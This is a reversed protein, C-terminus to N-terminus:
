SPPSITDDRRRVVLLMRLHDASANPMGILRLEAGTAHAHDVAREVAAELSGHGDLHKRVQRGRWLRSRPEQVFRAARGRQIVRVDARNM